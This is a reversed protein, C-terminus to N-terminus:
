STKRKVSKLKKVPTAETIQFLREQEVLALFKLGDKSTHIRQWQVGSVKVKEVLNFIMLKPAVHFFLFMTSKSPTVVM